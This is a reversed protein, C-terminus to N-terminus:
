PLFRQLPVLVCRRFRNFFGNFEIYQITDEIILVGLNSYKNNTKSNQWEDKKQKLYIVSLPHYRKLFRLEYIAAIQIEIYPASHTGDKDTIPKGDQDTDHQIKRIIEHFRKFQAEDRERSRNLISIIMGWLFACAAGLLPLLGLLPILPILKGADQILDSEM